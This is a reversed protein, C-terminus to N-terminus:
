YVIKVVKDGNIRIYENDMMSAYARTFLEYSTKFIKINDKVKCYLENETFSSQKLLSNINAKVIDVREHAIDIMIEKVMDQKYNNINYFIDIVNVDHINCNAYYYEGSILLINGIVLSDIIKNKIDDSYNLHSLNIEERKLNTNPKTFQELVFMHFPLMIVNGNNITANIMGMHPYYVLHKNINDNKYKMDITKLMDSYLGNGFNINNGMNYNAKWVHQTTIIADYKNNKIDNWVVNYRYLLKSNNNFVKVLEDYYETEIIEFSYPPTVELYIFREILKQALLAIFEDTNNVCSGIYYYDELSIFESKGSYVGCIHNNINDIIMQNKETTNFVKKINSDIIRHILYKNKAYRSMNYLRSCYSMCMNADEPAYSMMITDIDKINSIIYDIDQNYYIFFNEIVPLSNCTIIDTFRKTIDDKMKNFIPCLDNCNFMEYTTNYFTMFQFKNNWAKLHAVMDRFEYITKIYTHSKNEVCNHNDYYDCGTKNALLCTNNKSNNKSYVQRNRRACNYIDNKYSDYMVKDVMEILINNEFGYSKLMYDTYDINICKSMTRIIDGYLLRGDSNKPVINVIHYYGELYSFLERFPKLNNQLINNRLFNIICNKFSMDTFIIDIMNRVISQVLKINDNIDYLHEMMTIIMNINKNVSVIFANVNSIDLKGKKNKDRHFQRQKRLMIIMNHNIISTINNKFEENCRNNHFIHNLEYSDIDNIQHVIIKEFLHDINIEKSQPIIINRVDRILMM